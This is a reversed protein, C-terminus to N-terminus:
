RYAGAPVSSTQLWCRAPRPKLRPRNFCCSPMQAASCVGFDAQQKGLQWAVTVGVWVCVTCHGVQMLQLDKWIPPFKAGTARLLMQGLLQQCKKVSWM